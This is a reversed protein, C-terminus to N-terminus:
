EITVRIINNAPLGDFQWFSGILLLARKGDESETEIIDWLSGSFAGTANYGPALDGNSELIMFGDRYVGGYSKFYGSVVIKGDSLQRAQQIYGGTILKPKFSEDVTGDANLLVIQESAVGNYTRFSGTLLYKGTEPNYSGSGVHYDPGEGGANFTEDITGDANLRTVYRKNAGDFTSFSGFVLLKDKLEGETHLYTNISGNGADPSSNTGENFRYTKDLTGDPNLRAIQRVQTSDLIVTDRVELRNPQDYTRTVYYRFNGTVLLKGDQLYMKDVSSNFGGNFTPYYKTTDTQDPRRYPEVGMTDISGNNNLMTINSINDGRQGYGGFAGAIYFKNNYQVVSNLFGNAGKGTRLSADYTGDPFIRVIRNIPRIIGKNDYNTFGGVLIQKGDDTNLIHAVTGNAGRTAQFTPDLKILGTVTFRPGFVVVEGVSISVVGTSAYDPVKVKVESDTVSLVEAEEGSIRFIMEDQYPVLGTVKFTVETGPLGSEPVPTQSADIKIGLPAKGEGYPESFEQEKERCSVVMLPLVMVITLKFLTKLIKM